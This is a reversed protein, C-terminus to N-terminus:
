RRSKRDDAVPSQLSWINEGIQKLNNRQSAPKGDKLLAGLDAVAGAHYLHYVHGSPYRVPIDSMDIIDIGIMGELHTGAEGLRPYGHLQRSVALASDKNSVYVTINRALPRILPLYQEFIAADIDPAVLVVQDVMQQEAQKSQALRVLALMIGRTGLSHAVLNIKGAGFVEIMEQLTRYLPEVSWFLDSEDRTYNVLVGDSPWSFLVLRGNIGQTEQLLSARRCGREFGVFFGHSYLVPSQGNLSEQLGPWFEEVPSLRIADLKVIEEPIYFPAIEAVSKLSTLSLHSMDCHGARLVDREGGFFRSAKENGTKDRLTIFPVSREAGSQTGNAASSNNGSDTECIANPSCVMILSGLLALVPLRLLRKSTKM